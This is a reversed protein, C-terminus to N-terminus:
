LAVFEVDLSVEQSKNSTIGRDKTDQVTLLSDLDPENTTFTVQLQVISTLDPGRDHQQM